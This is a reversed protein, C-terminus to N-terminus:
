YTVDIKVAVHDSVNDRYKKLTNYPSPPSTVAAAGSCAPGVCWFHDYRSSLVGQPNLSTETDPDLTTGTLSFLKGIEAKSFNWDGGVVVRGYKTGSVSLGQFLQVVAPIKGVEQGRNTVNGFMAHYDLFWTGVKGIKLLVGCPPRSFANSTSCTMSGGNYPLVTYGTVNKVLVGYTERYSSKGAADSQYVLYNGPPTKWVNTLGDLKPMVEQLLVVDYATAVMQDRIYANKPATYTDKGWGMHLTNMSLVKLTAAQSAAGAVALLLWLAVLARRIAAASM